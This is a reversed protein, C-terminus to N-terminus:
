IINLLTIKSQFRCSSQVNSTHTFRANSYELGGATLQQYMSLDIKKIMLTVAIKWYAPLQIRTSPNQFEQNLDSRTFTKKKDYFFLSTLRKQNYMLLVFVNTHM